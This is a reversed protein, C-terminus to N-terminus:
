SNYSTFFERLHTLPPQPPSTKSLFLSSEYPPTKSWYGRGFKIWVGGMCQGCYLIWVRCVIEEIWYGCKVCKKQSVADVPSGPKEVISYEYKWVCQGSNLIWMGSVSDAIYYVCEVYTTRLLAGCEVYQKLDV